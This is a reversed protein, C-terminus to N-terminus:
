KNTQNLLTTQLMAIEDDIGSIEGKLCKTNMKINERSINKNDVAVNHTTNNHTVSSLASTRGQSLSKQSKQMM